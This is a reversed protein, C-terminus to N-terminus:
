DPYDAAVPRNFRCYIARRAFEAPSVAARFVNPIFICPADICFFHVSKALESELALSLLGDSIHHRKTPM